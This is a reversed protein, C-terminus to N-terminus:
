REGTELWRAFQEAINTTDRALGDLSSARHNPNAITGAVVRSAARLAEIRNDQEDKFSNKLRGVMETNMSVGCDIASKEIDARLPEKMRLKLQVTDSKKREVM